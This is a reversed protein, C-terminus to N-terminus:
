VCIKILFKYLTSQRQISNLFKLYKFELHTGKQLNEKSIYIYVYIDSILAPM